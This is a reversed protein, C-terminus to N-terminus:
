THDRRARLNELRDRAFIECRRWLADEPLGWQGTDHDKCRGARDLGWDRILGWAGMRSWDGQVPGMGKEM